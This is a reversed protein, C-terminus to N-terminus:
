PRRRPAARRRALVQQKRDVEHVRRAARHDLDVAGLVERREPQRRELEVRGSAAIPKSTASCWRATGRAARAVCRRATARCAPWPSRSRRRAARAPRGRRAARDRSARSPGDAPPGSRRRRRRRRRRRGARVAVHQQASLPQAAARPEVRRHDRRQGDQLAGCKVRVKKTMYAADMSAALVNGCQVCVYDDPGNGNFVPGTPIRRSPPAATARCRARRPDARM